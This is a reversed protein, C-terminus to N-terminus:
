EGEEDDDELEDIVALFQKVYVPVVFPQRHPHPITLPPLGQRTYTAHSGKQRKQFGLRALIADLDEFRVSKPNKRIKALLKDKKSM